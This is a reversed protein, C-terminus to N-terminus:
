LGDGAWGLEVIELLFMNALEDLASEQRVEPDRHVVQQLLLPTLSSAQPKLTKKRVDRVEDM